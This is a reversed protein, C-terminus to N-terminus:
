EERQFRYILRRISNTTKIPYRKCNMENVLWDWVYPPYHFAPDADCLKEGSGFGAEPEEALRYGAEEVAKRLLDCKEKDKAHFQGPMRQGNESWPPRLAFLLCVREKGSQKLQERIGDRIGAFVEGEFESISKPFLYVDPAPLDPQGLWQVADEQVFVATDGEVAHFRFEEVWGNLDVGTYDVAEAGDPHDELAARLGWYDTMNGCGLSVVGLRKGPRKEKAFLARFLERYEYAYGYLLRLLYLAQVEQRSYDPEVGYEFTQKLNLEEWVAQKKEGQEELWGRLWEYIEDLLCCIPLPTGRLLNQIKSYAHWAYVVGSYLKNERNYQTTDILGMARGKETSIWISKNKAPIWEQHLLGVDELRLRIWLISKKNQFLWPLFNVSLYWGVDQEQQAELLDELPFYQSRLEEPAEKWLARTELCTSGDTPLRLFAFAGEGKLERGERSNGNYCDAQLVERILADKREDRQQQAEGEPGPKRHYEGDVEVVLLIRDGLAKKLKRCVVFDLHGKNYISTLERQDTGIVPRNGQGDRLAWIPVNRYIALDIQKERAERILGELMEEVCQEPASREKGQAAKQRRQALQDFISCRGSAHFGFQYESNPYGMIREEEKLLLNEERVYSVLKQLFRQDKGEEPANGASEPRVFRGTLEEQIEREMLATSLILRLEKKARSVAVNILRKKQSWPWEWDGDEVPLLYIIDYGRGQSKHITLMPPEWGDEEGLPTEGDNELIVETDQKRRALDERIAEELSALQGRFPSLICVSPPEVSQIRERLQPWEEEMFCRVQKQNHKSIRRTEEKKAPLVRHECYNEEFWLVKIPVRVSRDYNPTCVVLGEERYIERACFNIIGPHCRYHCRLVTRATREGFIDLCCDLFSRDENVRHKQPINWGKEEAVEELERTFNSSIVPPLQKPDGVLVLHRAASMAVLGAITDTQSSEDMIIYDYCYSLGDQFCHKLSHVTSTIVPYRELFDAAQIAAERGVRMTGITEWINRFRFGNPVTDRFKERFMRRGLQAFHERLWIWSPLRTVQPDEIKEKINELASNNTSVVAVTKGLRAACNALNLITETKGTGPPGQIFSLPATLASLIAAQQNENLSFGELRFDKWGEPERKNPNLAALAKRDGLFARTLTNLERPEQQYFWLLSFPSQPYQPEEGGEPVTRERGSRGRIEAAAAYYAWLTEMERRDEEM